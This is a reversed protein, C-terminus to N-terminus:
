GYGDTPCPSRSSRCSPGLPGTTTPSTSTPSTWRGSRVAPVTPASRSAARLTAASSRRGASRSSASSWTRGTLRSSASSSAFWRIPGTIANTKPAVPSDPDKPWTDPRSFVIIDGPHPSRFDYVPKNVLIKDGSCGPCGHLTHEMSVSPIYFPQVVFTKVVVAVAVAILVLVPLEWWRSRKAGPKGVHAGPHIRIRGVAKGSPLWRATAGEVPPTIESATSSEPSQATAAPDSSTRAPPLHRNIPSEDAPPEASRDTPSM